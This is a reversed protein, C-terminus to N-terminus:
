EDKNKICILVIETAYLKGGYYRLYFKYNENYSSIIKPIEIIDSNNHYVSILLNPTENIIHNKCGSLAKKEGGEIDMKITSIKEQIDQDLTVCKIEFKGNDDIQNASSSYNNENFFSLKNVDGVACNKFIINKYEKLNEQAKNLSNFTMEYCYITKYNEAGYSNIYDITTDGIYAGVDIFVDDKKLKLIDLDFYHKYIDNSVKGLNYFDFNYYNNIISFLIYKSKYDSLNEYLWVFDNYNNKFVKAKDLYIDFIGNKIDMKGWYGFSNFFKEFSTQTEQPLNLFKNVMNNYLYHIDKKKFEEIVSYFLKDIFNMSIYYEYVLFIPM